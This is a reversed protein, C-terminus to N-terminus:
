ANNWKKLYEDFGMTDQKEIEAQDQISKLATEKMM